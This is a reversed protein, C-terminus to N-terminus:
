YHLNNNIKRILTKGTVEIKQLSEPMFNNSIEACRGPEATQCNYNEIAWGTESGTGDQKDQLLCSGDQLALSFDCYNALCQQNHSCSRGADTQKELCFLKDISTPHLRQNIFVGRQQSCQVEFDAVSISCCVEGEIQANGSSCDLCAQLQDVKVSKVAETVKTAEIMETSATATLNETSPQSLETRMQISDEEVVQNNDIDVMVQNAQNNNLKNVRYVIAGCLVMFILGLGISGLLIFKKSM